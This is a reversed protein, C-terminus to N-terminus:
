CASSCSRTVLVVLVPLAVLMGEFPRSNALIALGLALLLAHRVRPRRVLRPPVPRNSKTPHSRDSAADQLENIVYNSSAVLGLSLLGVLCRWLFGPTVPAHGIALAAITGPVALANKVWHDPRAIEVYARWSTASAPREGSELM